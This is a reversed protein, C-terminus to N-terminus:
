MPFFTISFDQDIDNQMFFHYYEFISKQKKYM